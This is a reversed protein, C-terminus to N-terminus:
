ADVSDLGVARVDHVLEIQVATGLEHFVGHVQAQEGPFVLVSVRCPRERSPFRTGPSRYLNRSRLFCVDGRVIRSKTTTDEAEALVEATARMRTM